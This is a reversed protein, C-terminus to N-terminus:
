NEIVLLDDGRISRWHNTAEIAERCGKLLWGWKKFFGESVEWGSIEWPNNWAVLGRSECDNFGDWLGGVIDNCMDDNDYSGEALIMNDRLKGLPIIDIWFPHPTSLQLPTPALNPPLTSPPDFLTFHIMNGCEAPVSHLLQLISMNTLLARFVNYHVLVILHDLSLPFIIAPITVQAPARFDQFSNHRNPPIHIALNTSM